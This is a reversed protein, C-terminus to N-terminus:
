LGVDRLTGAFGLVVGVFPFVCRFLHLWGWQVVIAKVASLDEVSKGDTASAELGFLINNTPAMIAWTFPVMALTSVAAASYIRRQRHNNRKGLATYVYLGVTGVCIAPMYIHGYYYVRVWQHLLQASDTITDLFVPVVVGTLCVM